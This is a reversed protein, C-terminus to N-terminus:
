SPGNDDSGSTGASSVGEAASQEGPRWVLKVGFNADTSARAIIWDAKGTVKIGFTVEIEEPAADKLQNLVIRAAEVSPRVANRIRGLAEATGAPRFGEVPDVEFEVETADDLQYRIVEAM